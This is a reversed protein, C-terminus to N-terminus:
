VQKVVGYLFSLGFEKVLENYSRILPKRKEHSTTYEGVAQSLVSSGRRPRLVASYQVSRGALAATHDTHIDEMRHTAPTHGSGAIPAYIYLVLHGVCVRQRTIQGSNLLKIRMDQLTKQRCSFLLLFSLLVHALSASRCLVHQIVTQRSTAKASTNPPSFQPTTM